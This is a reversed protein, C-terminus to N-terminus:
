SLPRGARVADLMRRVSAAIVEPEDLPVVHGSNAAVIMASNSSLTLLSEQGARHNVESESPPEVIKGRRIVLLPLNGLAGRPAPTRLSPLAGDLALFEAKVGRLIEPTYAMVMEPPTGAPFGMVPVGPRSIAIAADLQAVIASRAQEYEAVNRDTTSDVLILGAVERRHAHAYARALPGGLSHAVIIYPGPVDAAALLLHLDRVMGAQSWDAPAPDSWGLGARDYTCVRAFPAIADQVRGFTANATFQSLGAELIVTPGATDGKCLIHLRREGDVAVLRGPADPRVFAAPRTSQPATTVPQAAGMPGTMAILLAAGALIRGLM